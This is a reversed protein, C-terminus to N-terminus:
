PIMMIVEDPRVFGLESRIMEEVLDADASAPNLLDIHHTLRAQEASLRALEGIRENKEIHYGHWRFIGNSGVTAYGLVNTVLLVILARKCAHKFAEVGRAGAPLARRCYSVVRHNAGGGASRPLGPRPLEGKHFSPQSRPTARSFLDHPGCHPPEGRPRKRYALTTM